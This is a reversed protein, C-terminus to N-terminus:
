SENPERTSFPELNRKKFPQTLRGSSCLWEIADWLTGGAQISCEENRPFVYIESPAKPHFVLEDGDLTDGIIVYEKARSAECPGRDWFWYQNVRERWDNLERVIRHPPYIRIYSGGLVGEGLKTVYDRYGNPMVGAISKELQNVEEASSLFLTDGVITIPIM